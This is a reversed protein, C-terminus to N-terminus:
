CDATSRAIDPLEFRKNQSLAKIEKQGQGAQNINEKKWYCSHM